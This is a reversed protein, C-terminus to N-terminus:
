PTESLRYGVGRLTHLLPRTSARTSSRACAASTPTSSRPTPTSATTGCRSWCCPAPSWATRTACSISWSSSSARCSTSRAARAPHGQAVPPGHRRRRLAAHDGGGAGRGPARPERAARAARQLRVAQHPLRRRGRAPGLGARRAPGPGVPDPDADRRGGGAAGQSGVARGHGAGDPGDGGRRLQLLLRPLPRRPRRTAHEVTYGAERLGKTLYDATDADDEVVLIRGSM